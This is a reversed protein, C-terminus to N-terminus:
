NRYIIYAKATEFYGEEMLAAEVLDQIEEVTPYGDVCKQALPNSMDATAAQVCLSVTKHHVTEAVKAADATEGEGTERLAMLIAYAIKKIDFSQLTGDRKKIHKIEM